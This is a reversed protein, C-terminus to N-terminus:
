GAGCRGKVDIDILRQAMCQMMQRPLDVYPGKEALKALTTALSTM